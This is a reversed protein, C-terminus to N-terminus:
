IMGLKKGMKKYPEYNANFAVILWPPQFHPIIDFFQFFSSLHIGFLTLCCAHATTKITKILIM